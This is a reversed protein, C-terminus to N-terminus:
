WDDDEPPMKNGMADNFSTELEAIVERTQNLYHAYVNLFTPSDKDMWREIPYASRQMWNLSSIEYRYKNDKFEITMTYMVNGANTVTGEKDPENSIRYRAKIVIVGKALDKERIVDGPNKYYKNAWELARNFLLEKYSEAISNKGKFSILNTTKSIPMEPIVVEATKGRQAIVQVSFLFTVVSLVFIKKM